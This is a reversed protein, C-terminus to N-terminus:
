LNSKSISYKIVIERMWDLNSVIKAYSAPVAVHQDYNDVKKITKECCDGGSVLTGILTARPSTDTDTDKVLVMLPGGSDGQFNLFNM